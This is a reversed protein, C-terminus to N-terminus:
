RKRALELDVIYNVTIVGGHRNIADYIGRFLRERDASELKMHDPYTSLLYMYEEATFDKPFRYLRYEADAFGYRLATEALARANEEGFDKAKGTRPMYRDYLSQIEEALRPRSRDQAAHYAFRAFVGGSKLLELVRPYGYDADIWHFATAAYILDFSEAPSEFEQLTQVRLSFDARQGFKAMALAALHEGPEIGILTCGTDLVPATAKGTGLGIELVRSREDIPKYSLLDRYLEDPYEPRALEYSEVANDFTREFDM